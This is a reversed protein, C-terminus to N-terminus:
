GLSPHKVIRWLADIPSWFQVIRRKTWLTPDVRDPFTHSGCKEKEKQGNISNRDRTMKTEVHVSIRNRVNFIQFAANEAPALIAQFFWQCCEWFSTALQFQLNAAVTFTKAENSFEIKRNRKTRAKPTQIQNEFHQQVTQQQPGEKFEGAQARVDIIEEWSFSLSEDFVSLCFGCHSQM